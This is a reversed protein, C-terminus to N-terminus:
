AAPPVAPAPASLKAVLLGIIALAASVTHAVSAGVADTLFTSLLPMVDAATLASVISLLVGAWGTKSQFVIV